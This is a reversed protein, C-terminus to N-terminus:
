RIERRAGSRDGGPGAEAGLAVQRRARSAACSSTSPVSRSTAKPAATTARRPRGARVVERVSQEVVGLAIERRPSVVLDVCPRRLGARDGFPQPRWGSSAPDLLDASALLGRRPPAPDTAKAVHGIRVAEEALDDGALDRGGLDVLVLVGEGELIEVRLRRRVDQDHGLSCKVSMASRPRSAAAAAPRSAPM